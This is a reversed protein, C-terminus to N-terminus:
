YAVNNHDTTADVSVMNIGGQPLCIYNMGVVARDLDIM